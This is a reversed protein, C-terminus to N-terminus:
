VSKVMRSLTAMLASHDGNGESGTAAIQGLLERMADVLLLLASIIEPTAMLSGDRLRALLSEGAHTLAGLKTFGLFSTAGKLSHIARFIETLLEKSGPDKELCILHRELRDTKENGEDIFGAVIDSTENM